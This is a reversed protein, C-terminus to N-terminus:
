RTLIWEGIGGRWFDHWRQSWEIAEYSTTM